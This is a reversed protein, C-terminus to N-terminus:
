KPIIILIILFTFLLPHKTKLLSYYYECYNRKDLNFAEEYPLNNLEEDNYSIINKIKDTIEDKNKM